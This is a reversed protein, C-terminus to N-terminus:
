IHSKRNCANELRPPCTKAEPAMELHRGPRCAGAALAPVVPDTTQGPQLLFGRIISYRHRESHKEESGGLQEMQWDFFYRKGIRLLHDPRQSLTERHKRDYVWSERAARQSNILGEEKLFDLYSAMTARSFDGKECAHVVTRAAAAGSAMAPWSGVGDRTPFKGADGTLLIGDGYLCGLDTVGGLPILHAQYERLKAGRILRSIYPHHERAALIQHNPVGTNQLVDLRVETTLSLSDCNTYLESHYTGRSATQVM